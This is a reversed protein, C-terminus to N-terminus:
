ADESFKRLKEYQDIKLFAMLFRSGLVRSLWFDIASSLAIRMSTLALGDWFSFIFGGALQTVEGPIVFVIVQFIQLILFVFWGATGYSLIWDRLDEKQSFLLSLKGKLLFGAILLALLLIPFALQSITLRRKLGIKKGKRM